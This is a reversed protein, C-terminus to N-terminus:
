VPIIEEIQGFDCLLCFPNLVHETGHVLNHRVIGVEGLPFDFHQPNGVILGNGRASSSQTSEVRNSLLLFLLSGFVDIEESVVLGLDLSFEVAVAILNQIEDVFFKDGLSDVSFSLDKQVCLLPIDVSINTFIGGTVVILPSFLVSLIGVGHSGLLGLLVKLLSMWAPETESQIIRYKLVFDIIVGRIGALKGLLCKVIGNSLNVLNLLVLVFIGRSYHLEDPIIKSEPGALQFAGEVSLSKGMANLGSLQWVVVMNGMGSNEVFVVELHSIFCFM